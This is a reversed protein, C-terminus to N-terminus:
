PALSAVSSLIIRRIRKAHQIVLAVCVRLCARLYGSLRYYKNSKCLLFQKAFAGQTEMNRALYEAERTIKERRVATTLFGLLSVLMGCIAAQSIFRILNDGGKFAKVDQTTFSVQM